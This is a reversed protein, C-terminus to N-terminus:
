PTSLELAKRIGPAALVTWSLITGDPALSGEQLLGPRWLSKQWPRFLGLCSSVVRSAVPPEELIMEELVPSEPDEKSQGTPNPMGWCTRPILDFWVVVLVVLPLVTYVQIKELCAADLPALKARVQSIFSALGALGYHIIFRPWRFRGRQGM